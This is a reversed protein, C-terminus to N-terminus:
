REPRVVGTAVGYALYRGWVAVAAPPLDAFVEHATLWGRVGLWRALVDRGQASLWVRTREGVVITAVVYVIVMLGGLGIAFGGVTCPVFTAAIAKTLISTDVFTLGREKADACVERQFQRHWRRMGSPQLFAMETLRPRRGHAQLETLVRQEYPALGGVGPRVDMLVTGSPDNAPQHLTVVGRAALDLVTAWVAARSIKGHEVLLSVVAPPETGLEITPADPAILHGSDRMWKHVQRSSGAIGQVVKTTVLIIMAVAGVVTAVALVALAPDVEWVAALFEVVFDM